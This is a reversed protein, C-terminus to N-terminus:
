PEEDDTEANLDELVTGKRVDMAGTPTFEYWQDVLNEKPLQNALPTFPYSTEAMAKMESAATMYPHDTALLRGYELTEMFSLFEKEFGPRITLVVRAAGARLFSRHIFEPHYLSQKLEWRTHDTWFYPYLIYIVNEWEIAQHLFRVLEGHKLLNEYDQQSRVNGRSGYIDLDVTESLGLPPLDAPYFAFEPGLVWRLVAKMIEEKEIKRLVLADDRYLEQELQNVERQLAQRKTEYQSRAADVLREYSKARWENLATETLRGTAFVSLNLVAGTPAEADESWDWLYTWVFSEGSKAGANLRGSNLSNLPDL